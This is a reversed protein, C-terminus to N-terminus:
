KNGIKIKLGLLKRYILKGMIDKEKEKGEMEGKMQYIMDLDNLNEVLKMVQIM